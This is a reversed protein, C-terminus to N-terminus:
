YGYWSRNASEGWGDYGGPITKPFNRDLSQGYRALHNGNLLLQLATHNTGLAHGQPFAVNLRMDKRRIHAEFLISTKLM